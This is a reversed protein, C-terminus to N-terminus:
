GSKGGPPKVGPIVTVEIVDPMKGKEAFTTNLYLTTIIPRDDGRATEANAAEYRSCSKCDKKKHLVIKKM